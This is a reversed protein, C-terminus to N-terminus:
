NADGHSAVDVADVVSAARKFGGRLERGLFLAMTFLAFFEPAYDIVGGFLPLVIVVNM